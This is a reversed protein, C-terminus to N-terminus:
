INTILDVQGNQNKENEFINMLNQLSEIIYSKIEEKRQIEKFLNHLTKVINLKMLKDVMEDILVEESTDNNINTNDYILDEIKYLAELIIEKDLIELMGYIAQIGGNDIFFKRLNLSNIYINGLIQMVGLIHLKYNSYKLNQLSILYSILKKIITTHKLLIISNKNKSIELLLLLSLDKRYNTEGYLYEILKSVLISNNVKEIFSIQIETEISSDLSNQFIVYLELLSLEGLTKPQPINYSSFIEKYDARTFSIPIENSLFPLLSIVDKEKAIQFYRVKIEEIENNQSTEYDQLQNIDKQPDSHSKSGEGETRSKCNCLGM